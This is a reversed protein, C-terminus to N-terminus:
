TLTSLCQQQQQCCPREHKDYQQLQQLRQEAPQYTAIAFSQQKTGIEIPLHM